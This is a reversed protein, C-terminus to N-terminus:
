IEIKMRFQRCYIKNNCFEKKNMEDNEKKEQIVKFLINYYIIKKSKDSLLKDEDCSIVVSNPLIIYKTNIIAEM